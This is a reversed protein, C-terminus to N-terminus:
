RPSDDPVVAYKRTQGPDLRMTYKRLLVALTTRMLIKALGEGLCRHPSVLPGFAIVGPAPREGESRLFRDIKLTDPDPYVSSNRMAATYDLYVIEGNQVHSGLIRVDDTVRRVVGPAAPHMRLIENIFSDLLPMESQAQEYTVEVSGAACVLTDQEEALRSWRSSDLGMEFAASATTPASTSSGATWLFLILEALLRLDDPCAEPDQALDIDSEAIAILLMNVEGKKIDRSGKFSLNDGYECLKEILHKNQRINRKIVDKLISILEARAKM